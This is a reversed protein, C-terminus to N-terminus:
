DFNVLHANITKSVEIPKNNTTVYKIIWPSANKLGFVGIRNVINKIRNKTQISNIRIRPSSLVFAINTVIYWSLISLLLKKPMPGFVSNRM